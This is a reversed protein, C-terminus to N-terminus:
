KTGAFMTRSVNFSCGELRRLLEGELLRLRAALRDAGDLRGALDSWGRDLQGPTICRDTLEDLDLRFFAHAGAPTFRVALVEVEDTAQLLVQRSIQGVLITTTQRVFCGAADALNFPTRLNFILEMCGDPLVRDPPAGTDPRKHLYWLCAIHKALHPHPMFQRYIM